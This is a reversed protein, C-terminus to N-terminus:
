RDEAATQPAPRPVHVATGALHGDDDRMDSLEGETPAAQEGSPDPSGSQRLWDLPLVAATRRM